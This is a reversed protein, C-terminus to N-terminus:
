VLGPQVAVRTEARAMELRARGVVLEDALAAPGDDGRRLRRGIRGSRDLSRQSRELVDVPEVTADVDVNEVCGVATDTGRRGASQQWPLHEIDDTAERGVVSEGAELDDFARRREVLVAAGDIGRRPGDCM